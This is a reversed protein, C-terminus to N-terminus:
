PHGSRIADYGVTVASKVLTLHVHGGSTRSANLPPRCATLFKNNSLNATAFAFTACNTLSLPPFMCFSCYIPRDLIIVGCFWWTATIWNGHRTRSAGRAETKESLYPLFASHTRQVCTYESTTLINTSRTELFPPSFPYIFSQIPLSQNGNHWRNQM